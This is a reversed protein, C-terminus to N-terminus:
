EYCYLGSYNDAFYLRNNTCAVGGWYNSFNGVKEVINGNSVDIAMLEHISSGVDQACTFYYGNSYCGTVQCLALDRQWQFNGSLDFCYLRMPYSGIRTMAVIKDDCLVLSRIFSYGSAYPYTWDVSGTALDVCMLSTYGIFVKGNHILPGGYFNGGIGITWKFNGAHDYCYINNGSPYVVYNDDASPNFLPFTSAPVSWNQTGDTLDVSYFMNHCSRWFLTDDVIVGGMHLFDSGEKFIWSPLGANVKDFCFIGNGGEIVKNGYVLPNCGAWFSGASSGVV